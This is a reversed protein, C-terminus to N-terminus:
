PRADFVRALDAPFTLAPDFQQLLGGKQLSAVVLSSCMEHNRRVWRVSFGFLLDLCAGTMDLYGFAQGVQAEAYQVTKLRAESTFHPGIRVLHYEDSHYTSISSRTVGFTKAEVLAGDRAVVLAAHSWHAYPAEAGKYRRSQAMTIFWVDVAHRHTLIFDGPLFETADEGPGYREIEAIQEAPWAVARGM